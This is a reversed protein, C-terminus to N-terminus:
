EDGPSLGALPAAERVLREAEARTVDSGRLLDVAAARVQVVIASASLNGTQALVPSAQGAARLAPDRVSVEGSPDDLSEEVRRVASSLARIAGPMPVPVNEGLGLARVVARSLTEVNHDVHRDADSCPRLPRLAHAHRARIAGDAADRPGRTSAGDAVQFNSSRSRRPAPLTTAHKVAELGIVKVNASNPEADPVGSGTRRDKQDMAM